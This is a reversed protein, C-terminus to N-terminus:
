TLLLLLEERLAFRRAFHSIIEARSARATQVHIRALQLSAANMKVQIDSPTRWSTMCDNSTVACKKNRPLMRSFAIKGDIVLSVQKNM